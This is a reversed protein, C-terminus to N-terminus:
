KQKKELNVVGFCLLASGVCLWMGGMSSDTDTAFKIIAVVYCLISAAFLLITTVKEKKMIIKVGM